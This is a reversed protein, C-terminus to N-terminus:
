KDPKGLPWRFKTALIRAVAPGGVGVIVLGLAAVTTPWSSPVLIEIGMAAVLSLAAISFGFKQGRDMRNESRELEKREQEHRHSVQKETLELMRVGWGPFYREYEAVMQAPMFPGRYTAMSMLVETTVKVGGEGIAARLDPPLRELVEVPITDTPKDVNPSGL